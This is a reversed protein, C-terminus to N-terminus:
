QEIREPPQTPQAADIDIVDAPATDDPWKRGTMQEWQRRKALADQQAYSTPPARSQVGREDARLWAAELGQSGRRCWVRLFAELPMGAKGAEARAGALVTATVPAKKAKRLALWDAWTQQEVDDPRDIAPQRKPKEQAPIQAPAADQPALAGEGHSVSTPQKNKEERSKEERAHCQTVDRPENPIQASQEDVACDNKARERQRRKRESATEDERKPQRKDWGTLKDGDLIRGQMAGLIDAIAAEDADLASAVDEACITTHGRTVNRSADVMVHLAVALVLSIQQGSARAISRWKPDNPMDHWLRLWEIGSAM